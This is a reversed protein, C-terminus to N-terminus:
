AAPTPASRGPNIDPISGKSVVARWVGSETKFKSPKKTTCNTFLWDSIAAIVALQPFVITVTRITGKPSKKETEVVVHRGGFIRGLRPVTPFRLTTGEEFQSLTPTDDLIGGRYNNRGTAKRTTMVMQSGAAPKPISFYERIDERVYVIGKRGAGLDIPCAVVIRKKVLDAQDEVSVPTPNAAM